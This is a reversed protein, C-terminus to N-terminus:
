KAVAQLLGHITGGGSPVDVRIVFHGDVTSPTVRVHPDPAVLGRILNNIRRLEKSATGPLGCIDGVNDDGDVGFLLTGGGGNAFAVVTKLANRKTKSTTGPLERKYELNETEGQSALASIESVPDRPTEFEVHQDRTQMWSGFSRYDYWQGRGDKLWLWTEQNPGAAFPITVKGAGKLVYESQTAGCNLELRVGKVATGGIWADIAVPRVVVRRFRARRDAIRIVVDGLPVPSSLPQWEGYFFSRFAGAFTPFSPSRQKGVLFEGPPQGPRDAMITLTKSPWDLRVGSVETESAHQNWRNGSGSGADFRANLGGISLADRQGAIAEAVAHARLRGAVFVWGRYDWRGEFWHPPKGGVTVDAYLVPVVGGVPSEAVLRICAARRDRSLMERVVEADPQRQAM